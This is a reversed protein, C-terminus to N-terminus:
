LELGSRTPNSLRTYLHTRGGLYLDPDKKEFLTSLDIPLSVAKLTRFISVELKLMLFQEQM